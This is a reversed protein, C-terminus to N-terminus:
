IYELILLIQVLVLLFAAIHSLPDRNFQSYLYSGVLKVEAVVCTWNFVIVVGCHCCEIRDRSSSICILM